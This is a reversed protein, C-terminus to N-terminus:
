LLYKCHACMVLHVLFYFFCIIKTIDVFTTECFSYFNFICLLCISKAAFLNTATNETSMVIVTIFPWNRSACGYWYEIFPNWLSKILNGSSLGVDAATLYIYSPGPSLSLPSLLALYWLGLRSVESIRWLGFSTLGRVSKSLRHHNM